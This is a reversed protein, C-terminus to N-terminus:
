REDLENNIETLIHNLFRIRQTQQISPEIPPRPKTPNRLSLWGSYTKNPVICDMVARRLERTLILERRSTAEIAICIYETPFEGIGTLSRGDWLNRKARLTIIWASKLEDATLSKCLKKIPDLPPLPYNFQTSM